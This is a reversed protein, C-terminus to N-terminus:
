RLGKLFDARIRLHAQIDESAVMTRPTRPERQEQQVQQEALWEQAHQEQTGQDDNFFCEIKRNGLYGYWNGWANQKIRPKSM